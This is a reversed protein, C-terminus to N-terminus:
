ILNGLTWVGPNWRPTDALEALLRSGTAWVYRDSTIDLSLRCPPPLDPCPQAKVKEPTPNSQHTRLFLLCRCPNDQRTASVSVFALLKCRSCSRSSSGRQGSALNTSLDQRPLPRTM